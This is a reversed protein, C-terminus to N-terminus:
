HRWDARAGAPCARPARPRSLPAPSPGRAGGGGGCFFLLMAICGVSKSKADMMVGLDLKLGAAGMLGHAAFGHIAHEYLHSSHLLAKSPICGVNLCTGGLSGRSEVCVTQTRPLPRSDPSLRRSSRPHPARSLARGRGRHRLPRARVKLGLQGAKIAAVYGGPGGGIVIVDYEGGPSILPPGSPLLLFLSPTDPSLCRPARGAIACFFFPM